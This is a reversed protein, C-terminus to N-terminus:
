IYKRDPAWKRFKRPLPGPGLDPRPRALNRTAMLESWLLIPCSVILYDGAANKTQKFNLYVANCISKTWFRIEDDREFSWWSWFSTSQNSFILSSNNHTNNYLTPAALHNWKEREDQHDQHTLSQSFLPKVATSTPDQSFLRWEHGLCPHRLLHFDGEIQWRGDCNNQAM